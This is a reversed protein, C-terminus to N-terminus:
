RGGVRSVLDYIPLFLGAIIIAFMAGAVVLVIPEIMKGITAVLVSLKNRYDEAIHALQEPLTGSLEGVNIMRIVFLPFILVDRFSDAIGEGRALGDRVEGLKERYIENKISEKLITMSQLIDIGAKMLLSFYETIFAMTSASIITSSLPLKLLLADTTRKVKRNGKYATVVIFVALALGLVISLFHNQIFESIRLLFITLSPLTVDMEKFLSLIKPVVYYFWFIVGGGMAIFVFSPYLLAQKTDSIINQIRKLHDSADQLMEDLRGTEEGMRILYIVTKPFIYRYKDAAESFAAGGQIDTIMDTIDSEFDPRESTSAGEELATTLTMGSRLMMSINSLFEAQFSRSVRRRLRMSVLRFLFSAVVGLKKVYISTNEGRELHTVASLVDKYPLNIVGSSIRGTPEMLKYRFYSM